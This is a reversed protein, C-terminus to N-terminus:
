RFYTSLPPYQHGRETRDLLVLAAVQQLNGYVDHFSTLEHEIESYIKKYEERSRCIAMPAIAKSISDLRRLKIWSTDGFTFIFWIFLAYPHFLYQKPVNLSHGERYVAAILYSDGDLEIVGPSVFHVYPLKEPHKLRGTQFYELLQDIVGRRLLRRKFWDVLSNLFMRPVPTPDYGPWFAPTEGM